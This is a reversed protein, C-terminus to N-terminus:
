KYFEEAGKLIENVWKECIDPELSQVYGGGRNEHGGAQLDPNFNEKVYDFLKLVNNDKSHISIRYADKVPYFVAVSDLEPNNELANLRFNGMIASTKKNDGGLNAWEKDGSPIVVYGLKGAKEMRIPLSEKFKIEEPTLNALVNLHKIVADRDKQLLKKELSSYLNSTYRDKNMIDLKVPELTEDFKICSNKRLDDVMGCFLQQLIRTPPAAGLAELLRMVIGSCSKASTDIYINTIPLADLEKEGLSRTIPHIDPVIDGDTHHDICFIKKAQNIYDIVNKSIRSTSSFDICLVTDPKDKPLESVATDLVRGKHPYDWTDEGHNLIIRQPTHQKKLYWQIAKASAVADEDTLSHCIIDVYNANVLKQNFFQAQKKSFPNAQFNVNM